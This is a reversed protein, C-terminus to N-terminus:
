LPHAQRATAGRIDNMNRQLKTQAAANLDVLLQFHVGGQLDLGKAMPKLGIDRMWTPTRPALNLAVNYNTGLHQKIVDLAHLQTDTDNFRVLVRNDSIDASKYDLKAAKLAQEM